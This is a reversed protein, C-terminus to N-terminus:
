DVLYKMHICDITDFAKNSIRRIKTTKKEIKGVESGKKQNM